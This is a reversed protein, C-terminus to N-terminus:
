GSNFASGRYEVLAGFPKGAVVPEVCTGFLLWQGEYGIIADAAKIFLDEHNGYIYIIQPDNLLEKIIRYGDPGRDAADGGYVITCEPDQEKCWKIASNEEAQEILSLFWEKKEENDIKDFAKWATDVVTAATELNWM